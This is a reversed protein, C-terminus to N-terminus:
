WLKLFEDAGCCGSNRMAEAYQKNEIEELPVPLGRELVKWGYEELIPRSTVVSPVVFAILDADYKSNFGKTADHVKKASYGLVLAGDVFHGDKTVTIAYAIKKKTSASSSASASVERNIAGNRGKDISATELDAVTDPRPQSPASNKEANERFEKGSDHSAHLIYIFLVVLPFLLTAIAIKKLNNSSKSPAM